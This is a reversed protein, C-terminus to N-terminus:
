DKAKEISLKNELIKKTFNFLDIYDTFDYEKNIGKRKKTTKTELYYRKGEIYKKINDEIYDILPNLEKIIRGQKDRFENKKMGDSIKSSQKKQDETALPQNNTGDEIAKLRRHTKDEMNKLRKLLGEKKRKIWAKILFKVWLVTNLTQKKYLIQDM